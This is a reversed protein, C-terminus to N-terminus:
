LWENLIVHSLLVPTQELASFLVIYLHDLCLMEPLAYWFQLCELVSQQSPLVAKEGRPWGEPVPVM